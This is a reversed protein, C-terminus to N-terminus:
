RPSRVISKIAMSRRGAAEAIARDQTEIIAKAPSRETSAAWCRAPCGAIPKLAGNEYTVDFTVFASDARKKIAM